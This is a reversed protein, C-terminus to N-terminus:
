STPVGDTWEGSRTACESTVERNNASSTSDRRDGNSERYEDYDEDSTRGQLPDRGRHDYPTECWRYPPQGM